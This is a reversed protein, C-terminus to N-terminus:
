VCFIACSFVRWCKSIAAHMGSVFVANPLSRGSHFLASWGLHPLSDPLGPGMTAIGLGKARQLPILQVITSTVGSLRRKFNPAVVEVQEVPVSM